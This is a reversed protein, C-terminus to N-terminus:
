AIKSQLEHILDTVSDFKSIEDASLLVDLVDDNTTLVVPYDYNTKYKGEFEDKHLFSMKTKASDKFQRWQKNERFTDFTLSCLSCKYTKPSIIKHAIDFVANVAGSDANYVFILQANM